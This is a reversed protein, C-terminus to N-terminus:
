GGNKEQLARYVKEPTIPLTRIRIGVADEIANAIAPAIPACPAEGIGRVAYPGVGVESELLVTKLPPLDRITPMKYDGFSLSTVRGEEVTLEEMLSYGLGSVVCGNIQGQHGVPNLIRGVDSANTIGLVKVQGTEVDVEVEAMQAVFSTIHSRAVDELHGRGKIPEGTRALFDQWGISQEPDSCRIRGDSFELNEEPWGLEAAVRAFLNKKLEQAAEYAVTSNVRTGRSGAIGSDFPLADSEWVEIETDDYPLDLEEAVVQRLTTYTGTGQDYIPTGVIVRGDPQLTVEATGVGGGPPRDALALGRGVYKPKPTSYGGAEAAAALTEKVRVEELHEGNAAEDGDEILNKLRFDLPDMGIARAVEDLQSEIAWIGQPEGPARMFGGPLNNTYVFSSDIRCNPIVYPGAAQTAGQITGGPKFAAYAGSNVYYDVTHAVLTGDKMVGTKLRTMTNHRPNGALFEELYDSVMRVPRGTAKALFYCIPTNRSNGKGGFDGGIYVHHMLITEQSIAAATALSERTNYPVKSCLWVHTRGDTEDINVLVAQPEIYGQHQRQTEYVNEIVVDAQAFGAEVDGKEWHTKFFVNSPADQKQRFGFYSNFDPHLIPADPKIADLSEFVAPMEEYEVEILDIAQQAIDEDDAAVAAVREGFFRVREYALTPVDKVARGWLGGTHVDAGTIVAHVGPLARAASTDISVIRAHSYPSHLSKGFLTGPLHIDGAYMAAGTVKDEGDWRRSPKGIVQFAVM